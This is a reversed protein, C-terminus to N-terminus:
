SGSGPMMMASFPALGPGVWVHTMLPSRGAVRDGPRCGTAPRAYQTLYPTTCVPASYRHYHWRMLPAGPPEPAHLSFTPPVFMEGVPHGADFVVFEPHLPDFQVDDALNARNYWHVGDLQEFGARRLATVSDWPEDRLAAAVRDRFAYARRRARASDRVHSPLLVMTSPVSDTGAEAASPSNGGDTPPAATGASGEMGTMGPMDTMEATGPMDTM